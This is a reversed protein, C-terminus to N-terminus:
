ISPSYFIPDVTHNYIDRSKRGGGTSYWQIGKPPPSSGVCEACGARRRKRFKNLKITNRNNRTRSRTRSSSRTRNKM